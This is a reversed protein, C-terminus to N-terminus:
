EEDRIIPLTMCTPGGGARTFESLDVEIVKIGRKRLEATVYL